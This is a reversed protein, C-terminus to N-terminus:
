LHVRHLKWIGPVGRLEHEGADDFDIGSGAVLDVVTQSVLVERAGAVDAIRSAVHVAIGSIDDGRREVEGVHVGARLELSLEAAATGIERACSVAAAPRTFIAVFGDGTPNIKTGGHRELHRDAIQDYADLLRRWRHDGLSAATRTSDVIDVFLIAALLRGDRPPEVTDASALTTGPPRLWTLVALVRRHDDPQPVLGLKTFITSIHSDVTKENIVLDNAIARNTRGQAMLALVERERDSLGAVQNGRDRRGLLHGVVEPDLVTGGGVVREIADVLTGVDLIREKLLYGFREPHDRALDAAYRSELSQSLLLIAMHPFRERLRVAAEAGEHTFTPPMRIDVLAIDPEHAAVAAELAAADGVADCIDIGAEGLLRVLGERLLVSDDAIVARM